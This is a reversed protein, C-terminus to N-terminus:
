LYTVQEVTDECASKKAKTEKAAKAKVQLRLKSLKANTEQLSLMLSYFLCIM